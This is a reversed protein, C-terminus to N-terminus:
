KRKFLFGKYVSPIEHVVDINNEFDLLIDYQNQFKKLFETEDFFWAPYSADYIVPPVKQLTLRNRNEKSFATRDILIYPYKKNIFKDIWEYPNPLYQLVGSLILVNADEVEDITKKFELIGDAIKKNGVNIYHEQEVVSWKKITIPNLFDKNQFYHTGLAGGFDVVKLMNHCETAVKYLGVLLPYSYQIKDFIFSDREFVAEKNKVKMVSDLTKELIM